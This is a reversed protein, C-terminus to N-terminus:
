EADLINFSFSYDLFVDFDEKLSLQVFMTRELSKQVDRMWIRILHNTDRQLCWTVSVFSFRPHTSAKPKRSVFVGQKEFLLFKNMTKYFSNNGNTVFTIRLFHQVVQSFPFIKVFSHKLGFSSDSITGSEDDHTHVYETNQESTHNVAHFWNWFNFINEQQKHKCVYILIM